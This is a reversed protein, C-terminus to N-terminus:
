FGHRRVVVLLDAILQHAKLLDQWSHTDRHVTLDDAYGTLFRLVAETGAGPVHHGDVHLFAYPVTQLRAKHENHFHRTDRGGASQHWVPQWGVSLCSSRRDGSGHAGTGAHRDPGSSGGHRLSPVPRSRFLHRGGTPDQRPRAEARTQHPPAAQLCSQCRHRATSSSRSRRLGEM